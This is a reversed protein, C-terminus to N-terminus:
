VAPGGSPLKNGGTISFTLENNYGVSPGKSYHLDYIGGGENVQLNVWIEQYRWGRVRVYVTQGRAMYVSARSLGTGNYNDNFALLKTMRSDEFIEIYSDLRSGLAGSAATTVFEFISDRQSTFSVIKYDGEQLIASVPSGLKVSDATRVRRVYLTTHVKTNPNPSSVM